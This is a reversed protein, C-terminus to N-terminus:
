ATITIAMIIIREGKQAEQINEEHSEKSKEKM